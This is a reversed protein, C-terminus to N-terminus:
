ITPAVGPVSWIATSGTCNVRIFQLDYANTNPNPWVSMEDDTDFGKPLAAIKKPTGGLATVSVSYFTVQVGCGFGSRMFYVRGEPENVVPAYQPRNKVTPIKRLVGADVNDVIASCHSGDACATWTAYQDGVSGNTLFWASPYSAVKTLSSGARDFVYVGHYKKGGAAFDRFFTIFTNSIRPDYDNGTSNVGGGVKTRTHADLDYFWITGPGGNTQWYIATNTGPDFGGVSGQTGSANLKVRAKTVPDEAFADFHNPTSPANSAFLVWADNRFPELQVGPPDIVKVPTILVAQASTAVLCLVLTVSAVTAARRM